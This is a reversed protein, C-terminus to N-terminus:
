NRWAKMLALGVVGRIDYARFISREIRVTPKAVSKDMAPKKATESQPQAAM